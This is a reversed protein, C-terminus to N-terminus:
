LETYKKALGKSKSVPYKEENKRMKTGLIELFDLDLVQCLRILYIAVDAIEESIRERGLPSKLFISVEQDSQWQLVEALEGVEATAAMILNKPTHFQSWDRAESFSQIRSQIDILSNIQTM